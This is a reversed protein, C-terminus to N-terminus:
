AGKHRRREERVERQARLALEMAEEDSLPKAEAWQRQLVDMGFAAQLLDDIEEGESKGARAARVKVLRLTSEEISITTRTKAM